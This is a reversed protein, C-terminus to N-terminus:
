FKKQHLPKGDKCSLFNFINTVVGDDISIVHGPSKTFVDIGAHCREGGGRSGGWNVVVRNLSNQKLPFCLKPSNGGSIKLYNSVVWAQGFSAQIKWWKYGCGEKEEGLSKVKNGVNLSGVIGHNTCPGSRANVNNGTSELTTGVPPVLVKSSAFHLALLLCIIFTKM